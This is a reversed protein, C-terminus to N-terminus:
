NSGMIKRVIARKVIGLKDRSPLSAQQLKEIRRAYHTKRSYDIAVEIIVPQGQAATEFARRMVIDIDQNNAIPFYGCELAEAFTGWNIHGLNNKATRENNNFLCYVIGLKERLATLVEMGSIAMAGDGVIGIVQKNPNALKIANVAPVTYGMANFSSPSIFHQQNNIPLLEAALVLHRGYGTVVIANDDLVKDLAEFFVLPNVRGKSNHELWDEKLEAKDKAILKAISTAKVDMGDNDGNSQLRQLLTSIAEPELQLVKKPLEVYSLDSGHVGITILCDCDKLAHRASPNTILGAHLPHMAPFASNGQLSTCVPAALFEALNILSQQNHTAGWGLLLAPNEAAVVTQRSIELQEQAVQPQNAAALHVPLPQDLDDEHVQLHVPIEVFVPGPKDSTAILQAKFISSVIANFETVKICAKTVPQLLQMPDIGNTFGNAVPGGAIILLPIGSIFAEAISQSIITDATILVTGIEGDTVTRSVADAMYVASNEQNVRHTSISTSRNLEDYIEQNHNGVVTFIHQTNLQELAYRVLQAGTKSM